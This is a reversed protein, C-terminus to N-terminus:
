ELSVERGIGVAELFAADHSIVILAGDFAALGQEIAAVSDLDLHNTPEDLMLLPPLTDGGLVCALGARLLQGGSLTGVRQLALDARFRFRALAARVANETARPHLRAFNAAISARPDLLGVSQDLLACDVSLQVTGSLPPVQKREAGKDAGKQLKKVM